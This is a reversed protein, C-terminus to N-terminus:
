GNTSLKTDETQQEDTIDGVNRTYYMLMALVVILLGTGVLLAYDELHLMAFLLGYLSTLILAILGARSVSKVAAFVYLSIMCVIVGTALAYANLFGIQESVSLLILYFTSLALGIIGYQVLHLRRKIGMEFLLLTIYTLALFMIGYKIARIIKSYLSVSEFINVGASFEDIDFQQEQISWVQPYNRALSPISWHAEFGQESIAHSAPLVSGQFSPHPWDSEINVKTTKGFPRFYFGSSGNIDLTMSFQYPKTPPLSDKQVDNSLNIPAHFGNKIVDTVKTGPEFDLRAKQGSWSLSSTRNIARTDSVGVALWARDWHINYINTSLQELKPLTITGSISVDANYVSAKYISRQRTKGHLMLDINLDDPLVIATRSKYVTKNKKSEKGDSDTVVEVTNFRETYPILLAVGDMSQSSGWTHAIDAQVHNYSDRREYVVSEVMGLPIMLILILISILVFRFVISKSYTRLSDISFGSSNPEDGNPMLLGIKRALFVIFVIGGFFIMALILLSVIGFLIEM